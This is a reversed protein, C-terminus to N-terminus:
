LYDETMSITNPMSSSVKDVSRIIPIFPPASPVPEPVVDLESFLELSSSTNSPLPTVQEHDASPVLSSPDQTSINSSKRPPTHLIFQQQHNPRSHFGAPVNL